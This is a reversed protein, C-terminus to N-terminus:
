NSKKKLMVICIIIMFIIMEISNILILSKLSDISGFCFCNTIINTIFYLVGFSVIDAGNLKKGKGLGAILVSLYVIFQAFLVLGFATYEMEAKKGDMFGFFIVCTLGITLIFILTKILNNSSNKEM